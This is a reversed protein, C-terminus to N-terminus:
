KESSQRRIVREETVASAGSRDAFREALTFTALEDPLAASFKLAAVMEEPISPVVDTLDAANIDELDQLGRLVMVDNHSNGECAGLASRLTENAKLGVWTWLQVDEGSRRAVVVGADVEMAREDRMSALRDEARRTLPVSLQEGLLVDRQARMVEFSLAIAGSQWKVDGRDGAPSVLVQFREWDVVEIRWARGNMFIPPVEGKTQWGGPLALPSLFGIDKTGAIVRLEKEANFSSLLDMLHRRGFSREAASGIMLMGGDEVLFQEACLHALVEDAGEMLGVPGWWEPWRAAEFAGEQLALALMQQAVLHRPHPPPVVPEVFGREWLLIVAAAELFTTSSTALFLTNRSTGPRRRTRGLRQLFSAVSRPADIQIVRDLDGIDIGLELTSTAVIVTNRGEAFAQESRRREDASLSSHSVFTEVGLERLEFAIQETTRRSECFVLRCSSPPQSRTTSKQSSSWPQTTM